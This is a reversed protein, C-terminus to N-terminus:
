RRSQETRPNEGWNSRLLEQFEREAVLSKRHGRPPRAKRLQKMMNRYQRKEMDQQFRLFERESARAAAISPPQPIDVFAATIRDVGLEYATLEGRSVVLNNGAANAQVVAMGNERGHALLMENQARTVSGYTPNLLLQAGDLALTRALIRLWRDSCILMGCRGLPTDFARVQRGPRWFNWTPHAGVGESLKHYTGCIEGRHDIFVASNFAERGIREAFGFCLCTKLTKALRCFRKMYPGNLPEAIDLLAERREPHYMADMIVYGELMGETALILAPRQRAAKRFFSEMKDANDAKNWKKPRMSIAAVKYRGFRADASVRANWFPWAPEQVPIPKMASKGM